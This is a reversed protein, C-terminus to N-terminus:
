HLVLGEARVILKMLSNESPTIKQILIDWFMKKTEANSYDLTDNNLSFECLDDASLTVKLKSENIVILEM